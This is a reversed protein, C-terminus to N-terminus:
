AKKPPIQTAVLTPTGQLFPLLWFARLDDPGHYYWHPEREDHHHAATISTTIKSVNWHQRSPQVGVDIHLKFNGQRIDMFNKVPVVPIMESEQYRSLWYVEQDLTWEGKGIQVTSPM